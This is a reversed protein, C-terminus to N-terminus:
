AAMMRQLAAVGTISEHLLLTILVSRGALPSDPDPQCMTEKAPWCWFISSVINPVGDEPPSTGLSVQRTWSPLGAQQPAPLDEFLKGSTSSTEADQETLKQM